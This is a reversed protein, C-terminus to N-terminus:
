LLSVSGGAIGADTYMPVVLTANLRALPANLKAPVLISPLAPVTVDILPLENVLKCITVPNPNVGPVPVTVLTAAIVNPVVPVSRVLVM